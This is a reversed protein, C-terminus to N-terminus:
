GFACVLVVVILVGMCVFECVTIWVLLCLPRLLIEWYILVHWVTDKLTKAGSGGWVLYLMAAEVEPCDPHSRVWKGGRKKKELIIADVVDANEGYDTMLQDRTRYHELGYEATSNKEFREFTVTVHDWDQVPGSV